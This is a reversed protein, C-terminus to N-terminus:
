SMFVILRIRISVYRKSSSPDVMLRYNNLGGPNSGLYEHKFPMCKVMLSLDKKYICYKYYSFIWIRIFM